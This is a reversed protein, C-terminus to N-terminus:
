KIQELLVNAAKKLQDDQQKAEWGPKNEVLFDPVAPADNEMNLGSKKVYWARFPMRVYGRSLSYGGTSIVAGFTPQGVLKGIELNKYAHSFIEANSYSNENCLAVSPKINVSLIARENFPYNLKFNKNEKQLNNTAGRPITYAHQDVNLVAMLRDTTWGGGNYRVDIVIGKKGYGSAKLEREFSEFSPANMGRIHIYGLEGKSYEEVLRRRSEVWAEYQLTKLSGSTRVIVDNGDSKTLLVEEGKTNKLLSYFNTSKNIPKENIAIIIDGVKLNVKSKNAASNKLVYEVIVGKEINKVELGLLGINDNNTRESTGARYGMHSANLQGLLLNYVFSYDQETTAKLVLPKYKEILSKWNYGHFNPDYFGMTLVRTGEEFIQQNLTGFDEIYKATHPLSTIKDGDSDLKKLKGASIFYFKEDIETVIEVKSSGKIVEPDTGDLKVKFFSRENSSPDTASYYVYKSDTSFIGGYEDDPLRTIRDLRDFIREEDISVKVEKKKKEKAVENEVYYDGNERDMKSREWDEKKLWVMWVDYDIGGRNGSRNSAFALKKGDPSWVPMIDSRPHMSINFKDNPNNVSQIFIESDFNLDEQSYAIYRSDPSWSLDKAEAWSSSYVKNNFIGGDKVDALILKGTGLRYAIKKHNPSVVIDYVDEKSNTLKKISIKLSRDLGVLTDKSSVRYIENHGDRDSIFLLEKDSIWQPNRDRYSHKSVNNTNKRNKNNQKVFVEGNIELAIFKGNPSADFNSIDSSTSVEKETEFKNDSEIKLNIKNFRGNNIQYLNFLTSYVIIGKDSVSFSVVGNKNQNTIKISNGKLSGDSSVSQKYINYRGSKAGIYYLNGAADWRPSHDNKESFTAQFYSDTKRNYIWVDRQASGSYDERSIRCAGKVYAVLNGDPSVTAMSGLATIFRQPTGGEANIQYVQEDWEPGKLVRSTAFVINNSSTWDYPTDGTPYYTLQKTIGGNKKITFINNYGKRNSSFALKDGENNWVPNSEYAEHITLRKTQQNDLNYTWIDGQYSFALEQGNPSIRPMRILSNQSSLLANILIFFVISSRNIM